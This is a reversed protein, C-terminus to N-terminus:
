ACVSVLGVGCHLRREIRVKGGMRPWPGEDFAKRAAKVAIDVDEPAASAIQKVVDGTRPDVVDLKGGSKRDVWENNIFLQLLLNLL